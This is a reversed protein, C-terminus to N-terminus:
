AIIISISTSTGTIVPLRQVWTLVIKQGLITTLEATNQHYSFMIIITKCMTGLHNCDYSNVFTERHMGQISAHVIQFAFM